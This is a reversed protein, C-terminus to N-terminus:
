WQWWIAAVQLEKLRQAEWAAREAEVRSRYEALASEREAEHARRAADAEAAQRAREAALAQYLAKRPFRGEQTVLDILDIRRRRADNRLRSLEPRSLLGRDIAADLLAENNRTAM